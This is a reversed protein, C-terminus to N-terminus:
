KATWGGTGTATKVYLTTSAGGSTNFYISGMPEDASPAGAGSTITPKGTGTGVELREVQSHGITLNKSADVGVTDQPTYLYGQVQKVGAAGEYPWQRSASIGGILKSEKTNSSWRNIGWLNRVNLSLAKDHDTVAGAASTVQFISFSEATAAVPVWIHDANIMFQMRNGVSPNVGLRILGRQEPATAGSAYTVNLAGNVEPHMDYLGVYCRANDVAATSDFYMMGNGATTSNDYTVSRIQCFVGSVNKVYLGYGGCLDWRCRFVDFNTMGDTEMSLGNATVRLFACNDFWSWSDIKGAGTSDKLFRYGYAATDNGHFAIGITHTGPINASTGALTQVMTGGAAGGWLIRVLQNASSSGPGLAIWAVGVPRTITSNIKYVGKPFYVIGGGAASAANCAAQIASADDTVGDGTASYPASKVNFTPIAADGLPSGLASWGTNGTGTQKVWFTSASGGDRRQFTSGVPASVASEPSGTGVYHHVGGTEIYPIGPNDSHELLLQVERGQSTRGTKASKFAYQYTGYPKAALV